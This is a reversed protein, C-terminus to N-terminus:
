QDAKRTNCARHAPQLNDPWNTGGESLPIVHDVTDAGPDGCLACIPGTAVVHRSFAKYAPDSYAKRAQARCRCRAKPAVPRGCHLCARM